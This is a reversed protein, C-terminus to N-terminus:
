KSMIQQVYETTLFPRNGLTYIRETWKAKHVKNSATHVQEISADIGDAASVILAEISGPTVTAGYEQKGHHSLIIHVLMEIKAEDYPTSVLQTSFNSVFNAGIFSHEYLLGEDTLESNVMNLRYGFLKGLDHLLAGALVLSLDADTAVAIPGAIKAVSVSHILNGALYAHHVSVASPTVMWYEKLEDYIAKCLKQLFPDSIYEDIYHLAEDYIAEIDHGSSPAFDSLALDTNNKLGRINLQANGQWETVQATVDLIAHKEPISKGSWDWFNGNINSEGDFFEMALYSKKTKTERVTASIVVLPITCIQQQTLEKIKM